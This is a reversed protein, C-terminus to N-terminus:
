QRHSLAFDFSPYLNCRFQHSPKRMRNAINIAPGNDILRLHDPIIKTYLSCFLFRGFPPYFPPAVTYRQNQGSIGAGKPGSLWPPKGPKIRSNCVSRTNNPNSRISNLPTVGLAFGAKSNTSSSSYKLLNYPNISSTLSPLRQDM